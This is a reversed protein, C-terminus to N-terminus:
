CWLGTEQVNSFFREFVVVKLEFSCNYKKILNTNYLERNCSYHSNFLMPLTLSKEPTSYKM